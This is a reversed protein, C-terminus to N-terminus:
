GETCMAAGTASSWVGTVPGAYIPDNPFEYLGGPGIKVLFVTTSAGTGYKLYLDASSDNYVHRQRIGSVYSFLGVPSTSAAVRRPERMTKITDTGGM